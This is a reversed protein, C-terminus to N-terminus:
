IVLARTNALPNGADWKGRGGSLPLIADHRSFLFLRREDAAPAAV